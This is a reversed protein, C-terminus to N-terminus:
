AIKSQGIRVQYIITLTNQMFWYLVLASPFNYFIVGLFLPFILGMMKQQSANSSTTTTTVKQQLMGLCIILLPLLNIYDVPPKFPLKFLHDPLSLDNIWLFKAGKLEVFRFLVQYLAIFIPFQFLLPLCGGLPNIRYKRYLEITEKQLKQPNEKHKEKLEEIEPQVQQMKRMAKTSKSTFPFLALYIFISFGIISLGWNKTLSYFFYLLKIMGVGLIHFFGYYPINGLGYLKLMKETQPGIYLQFEKTPELYLHTVNKNQVVELNYDGKVLSLCYYRDRAGAFEINKYQSVKAKKPKTRKITSEKAYFIEQYRQDLISASLINSFIVIPSPPSSSFRVTLINGEFWFEKKKGGPGQFVISKQNIRAVFRKSKDESIFGINEFPLENEKEKIAVRKIYGGVPSYTILFDEIQATPLDEKEPIEGVLNAKQAVEPSLDPLNSGESKSIVEQTGVTQPRQQPMFRSWFMLFALTIVFAILLRKEM